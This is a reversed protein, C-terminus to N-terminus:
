QVRQELYSDAPWSGFRNPYDQKFLYWSLPDLLLPLVSLLSFFTISLLKQWDNKVRLAEYKKNTFVFVFVFFGKIIFVQRPKKMPEQM